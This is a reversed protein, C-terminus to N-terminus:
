VTDECTCDFCGGGEACSGCTETVKKKLAERARFVRVAANNAAIGIESAFDKVSSEDIEVRRLAQEYEPKLSEAARSVCRCVRPARELADVTEVQEAAFADVGRRQVDRRRRDDVIANRLMRYFWANASESAELQDIKESAKVFASQVLDEAHATDRVQRTVFAVFEARKGMLEAIVNAHERKTSANACCSKTVSRAHASSPREDVEHITM